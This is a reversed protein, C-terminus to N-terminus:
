RTMLRATLESRKVKLTHTRPFDDDPYPRWGHVRQHDGLRRNARKLAADLGSAEDASRDRLARGAIVAVEIRGPAAEFAVPETLGEDVLLSEIDEPFVNMGNPLVFMTRTRGVLILRGDAGLRGADGTRYWGDATLVQAHAPLALAALGAAGGMFQRRTITM